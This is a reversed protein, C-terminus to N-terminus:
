GLGFGIRGKPRHTAYYSKQRLYPRGSFVAPFKGSYSITLNNGVKKADTLLQLYNNNNLAALMAARFDDNLNVKNIMSNVIAAMCHYYARYDSRSLSNGDVMQRQTIRRLNESPIDAMNRSDKPIAHFATVDEASIVGFQEAIKLPGTISDLTGLDKIVQSGLPHQKEIEPTLQKAVGSLSSAAGGGQAMKTSVNLQAGNPLYFISDILEESVNQPFEITTGEFSNLEFKSLLKGIDGNKVNGGVVAIPGLYEGGYKAIVSTYEAGGPIQEGMKGQLALDVAVNMIQALAAHPTNQVQEAIGIKVADALEAANRRNKDKILDSPKIPVSEEKEAKGYRYGRLTAWKGHVGQPPVSEIYRIWYQAEKETDTVTAIIAAKSNRTAQNDYVITEGNPIIGQVAAQMEETTEFASAGEPVIVDVDQITLIDTPDSTNVYTDGAARASVGRSEYLFEKARM